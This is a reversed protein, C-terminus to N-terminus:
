ATTVNWFKSDDDTELSYKEDIDDINYIDVNGFFMTTSSNEDIISEINTKKFKGEEGDEGIYYHSGDKYQIWLSDDTRQDNDLAYKIGEIIDIVDHLAEKRSEWVEFVQGVKTEITKM